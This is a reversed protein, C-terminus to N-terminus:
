TNKPIEPLIYTMPSFNSVKKLRGAPKPRDTPRYARQTAGTGVKLWGIWKQKLIMEDNNTTHMVTTHM